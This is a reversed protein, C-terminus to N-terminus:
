VMWPARNHILSFRAGHLGMLFTCKVVTHIQTVSHVPDGHLDVHVFYMMNMAM